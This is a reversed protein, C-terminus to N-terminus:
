GLAGGGYSINTRSGDSAPEGVSMRLNASADVYLYYNGLRLRGNNFAGVVRVDCLNIASLTGNTTATLRELGTDATTSSATSWLMKGTGNLQWSDNNALGLIDASMRSMLVDACCRVSFGM